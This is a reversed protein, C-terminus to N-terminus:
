SLRIFLFVLLLFLQQVLIYYSVVPTSFIIWFYVMRSCRRCICVFNQTYVWFIWNLFFFSFFLYVLLYDNDIIQRISYCLVYFLKGINHSLRKEGDDDVHDDNENEEDNRVYVYCQVAWINCIYIIREELFLLCCNTNWKIRYCWWWMMCWGLIIIYTTCITWFIFSIQCFIYLKEVVFDKGWRM